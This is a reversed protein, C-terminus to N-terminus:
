PGMYGYVTIMKQLEWPDVHPHQLPIKWRCEAWCKDTWGPNITNAKIMFERLYDLEDWLWLYYPICFIDKKYIAHYDDIVRLWKMTFEKGCYLPVLNLNHFGFTDPNGPLEGRSFQHGIEISPFKIGLEELEERHVKTILLDELWGTDNGPIFIQEMHKTLMMLKKTRLSFGGNGIVFNENNFAWSNTDQKIPAGVFDYNLFEPNWAEKNVPFGDYQIFMVYNTELKDGVEHLCIRSHEIADFKSTQYFRGYDYFPKDSFTIVDAEPFIERTKDLALATANYNLSDIAVITLDKLM